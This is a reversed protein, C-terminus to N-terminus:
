STARVSMYYSNFIAMPYAWAPNTYTLTLKQNSSDWSVSVGSGGIVTHSCGSYATNTSNLSFTCIILRPAGESQHSAVILVSHRGGQKPKIQFRYIKGTNDAWGTTEIGFNYTDTLYQTLTVNDTNEVAIIASTDWYTDNDLKISQGM